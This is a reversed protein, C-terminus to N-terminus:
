FFSPIAMFMDVLRMLISELRGGFYGALGGVITGLTLGVLMSLLGVALSVRGGSLIRAFV